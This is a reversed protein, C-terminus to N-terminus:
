REIGESTCIQSFDEVQSGNLSIATRADALLALDDHQDGGVTDAVVRELYGRPTIRTLPTGKRTRRRTAM